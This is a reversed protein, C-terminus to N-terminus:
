RGGNKDNKLLSQINNIRDNIAINNSLNNNIYNIGSNAFEVVTYLISNASPNSFGANNKLLMYKFTPDASIFQYNNPNPIGLASLLLSIPTIQFQGLKDIMMLYQPNGTDASTFVSIAGGYIINGNANKSKISVYNISEINYPTLANIPTSITPM